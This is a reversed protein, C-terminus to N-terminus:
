QKLKIIIDINLNISDNNNYILKKERHIFNKRCNEIYLTKKKKKKKIKQHKYSTKLTQV